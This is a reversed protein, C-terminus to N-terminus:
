QLGDLLRRGRRDEHQQGVAESGLEHRDGAATHLDPEPRERRIGDRGAQHAFAGVLRGRGSCRHGGAPAHVPSPEEHRIGGRGLPTPRPLVHRPAEVARTRGDHRQDVLQQGVALRHELRQPRPLPRLQLLQDLPGLHDSLAAQRTAPLDFVAM